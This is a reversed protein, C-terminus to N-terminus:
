VIIPRPIETPYNRKTRLNFSPYSKISGFSSHCKILTMMLDTSGEGSVSFLMGKYRCAISTHM